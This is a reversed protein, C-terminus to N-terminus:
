KGKAAGKFLEKITKDDLGNDKFFEELDEKTNLKLMLEIDDDKMLPYRDSLAQEIKNKVVGKGPPIWSHHQKRDTGCLALLKWQLEPHKSITNFNHNVIENVMIMHHAADKQSMSMFRMLIWLSIQKKHEASLNKYFDMDRFDMAPLEMDLTLTSANKKTKGTEETGDVAPNMEHFETLWKEMEDM